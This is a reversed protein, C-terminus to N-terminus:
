DGKYDGGSGGGSGSGGVGCVVCWRWYWVVGGDDDGDVFGGGRGSTCPCHQVDGVAEESGKEIGKEIGM